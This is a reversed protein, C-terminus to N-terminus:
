FLFLTQYENSMLGWCKLYVKMMLGMTLEIYQVSLQRPHMYECTRVYTGYMCTTEGNYSKQLTANKYILIMCSMYRERTQSKANIITNQM